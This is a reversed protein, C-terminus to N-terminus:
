SPSNIVLFPVPQLYAVIGAQVVEWARIYSGKVTPTYQCTAGGNVVNANYSTTAGTPDTVLLYVSAGTLDWWQEDKSANLQFLYTSNTTLPAPGTMLENAFTTLSM